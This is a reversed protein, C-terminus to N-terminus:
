HPSPCDKLSCVRSSLNFNQFIMGIRRRVDVIRKAHIKVAAGEFTIRGGQIPELGNICRLLTSKGTGSPGIFVVVEGQNVEFSIDNLITRHGFRKTLANVSVVPQIQM